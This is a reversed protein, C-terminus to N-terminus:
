KHRKWANLGEYLKGRLNSSRLHKEGLSMKLQRIGAEDWEEL